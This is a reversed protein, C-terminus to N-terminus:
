IGDDILLFLDGAQMGSSPLTTGYGLYRAGSGSANTVAGVDAATSPITPKNTLDNYSGSIAVAALGSVATAQVAGSKISGDAAHAQLLFDNLIQGWTQVDSGPVPLRAM